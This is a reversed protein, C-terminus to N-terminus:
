VQVFIKGNSNHLFFLLSFYNPFHRFSKGSAIKILYVEVVTPQELSSHWADHHAFTSRNLIFLLLLLVFLEYM